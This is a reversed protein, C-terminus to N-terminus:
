KCSPCTRYGAAIFNKQIAADTAESAYGTAMFGEYFNGQARNSQDGGTALIIAGQKRMPQYTGSAGCTGAIKPDPRAGDYMTDLTGITADGGKITFGDSRGKVSLSVFPFPLPKSNNNIKTQEGGGYYMGQELDAGAWPGETGAGTNGAWHANGFYIAEMTGCGDDRDNTESNGYDFCCGGNYRYGSMIAYISEPDNGTAINKTQDVHYGYGPDFYMGYVPVREPGMTVKHLLADVLKHRQGLHNGNSTQDYVNSIVCTATNYCFEEAASANAFGGKSLLGISTWEPASDSTRTRTVNYLPGNYEKYLARTTSHAAVCPNGAADLIDCPGETPLPGPPYPPEPPGTKCVAKFIDIRFDGGCTETNDGGCKYDCESDAKKVASAPIAAGYYCEVGYEVGIVVDAVAQAGIDKAVLAACAERTMSSSKPLTHNLIRTNQPQDDVYCGVSKTVNCEYQGQAELLSSVASLVLVSLM